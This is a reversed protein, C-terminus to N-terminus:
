TMRSDRTTMSHAASCQSSSVKVCQLVLAKSGAYITETAPESPNHRSRAEEALPKEQSVTGEAVSEAPVSMDSTAAEALAEDIAGQQKDSEEAFVISSEAPLRPTEQLKSPNEPDETGEPNEAFAQETELGEVIAQDASKQGLATEVAEGPKPSSSFINLSSMSMNLPNMNLQLPNMWSATNPNINQSTAKAPLAPVPPVDGKASTTLYSGMGSLGPISLTRKWTSGSKSPSLSLADDHKKKVKKLGALSDPINSFLNAVSRSQDSGIRFVLHEALALNVNHYIPMSDSIHMIGTQHVIVISQAALIRPLVDLAPQNSLSSKLVGSLIILSSFYTSTSSVLRRFHISM